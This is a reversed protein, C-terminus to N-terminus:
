ALLQQALRRSLEDINEPPWGPIDMGLRLDMRFLIEKIEKLSKRGFNPTRLMEFETKQILDGVYIINDNMLCNATRVSLDLEDFKRLLNMNINNRSREEAHAAAIEEATPPLCVDDIFMKAFVSINGQKCLNSEKINQEDFSSKLFLYAQCHPCPVAPSCGEAHNGFFESISACNSESLMKLFDNIKSEGLHKELYVLGKCNACKALPTCGDLHTEFPTSM